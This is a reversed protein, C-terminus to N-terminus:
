RCSSVKAHLKRVIQHMFNETSNPGFYSFRIKRRFRKEDRFQKKLLFNELM